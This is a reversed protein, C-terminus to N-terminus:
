YLIAMLLSFNEPLKGKKIDIWKINENFEGELTNGVLGGISEISNHCKDPYKCAEDDIRACKKCYGCYGASLLKGNLEKEKEELESLLKNREFFLSNETIFALDDENFITDLAEKTFNIKTFFLEIHEYKDWYLLPDINFEPCAWNLSYNPCEKCAKMTDDINVYKQKYDTTLLTKHFSESEYLTQVMELNMTM